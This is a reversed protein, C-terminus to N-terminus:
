VNHTQNKTKKKELMLRCVLHGRSQLESTHEESRYCSTAFPRWPRQDANQGAKHRPIKVPRPRDRSLDHVGAHAAAKILPWHTKTPPPQARTKTPPQPSPVVRTQPAWVSCHPQKQTPPSSTATM